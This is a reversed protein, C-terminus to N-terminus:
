PAPVVPVGDPVPVRKLVVFIIGGPYGTGYRTTADAPSMFRMEEVTEVGIDRLSRLPGFDREDVFVRPFAQNGISVSRSRLWQPRLRRVAEYADGSPQLQLEEPSIRDRDRPTRASGGSSACASFVLSALLASVAVVQWAAPVPCRSTHPLRTYM